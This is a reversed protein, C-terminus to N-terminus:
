NVPDYKSPRKKIVLDSANYSLSRYSTSLYKMRKFSNVEGSSLYSKVTFILPTDTLDIISALVCLCAFRM